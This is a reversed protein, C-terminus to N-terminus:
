DEIEKGFVRRVHTILRVQTELSVMDWQKRM